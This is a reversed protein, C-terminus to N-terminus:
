PIRDIKTASLTVSRSCDLIRLRFDLISFGQVMILDSQAFRILLDAIRM